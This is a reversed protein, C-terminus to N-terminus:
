ARWKRDLQKLLREALTKELPTAAPKNLVHLVLERDTLYSVDDRPQDM